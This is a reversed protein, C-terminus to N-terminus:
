RHGRPSDNNGLDINYVGPAGRYVAALAASAAADVHLLARRGDREESWTGPGYWRGYRLVIGELGDANLVASELGIEGEASEQLPDSERYPPKGEVYVMAISQAILRRAGAAKAANVVNATGDIRVRRNADVFGPLTQPDVVDPLDTLQHIVVDPKAAVMAATLAPLDYVNVVVAAAGFEEIRPAKEPTRTTGTVEHGAGVLLRLLPRGIAGSAGCVFVRM